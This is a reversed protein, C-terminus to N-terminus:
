PGWDQNLHFGCYQFHETSWASSRADRCASGLAEFSNSESWYELISPSPSLHILVGITPFTRIKRYPFFVDRLRNSLSSALHSCLCNSCVVYLLVLLTKYPTAEELIGVPGMAKVAATRHDNNMGRCCIARLHGKNTNRSTKTHQHPVTRMTATGKITTPVMPAQRAMATQAITISIM